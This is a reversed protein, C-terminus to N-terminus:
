RPAPAGARARGRPARAPKVDTTRLGTLAWGQQSLVAGGREFRARVSTLEQMHMHMHMNINM